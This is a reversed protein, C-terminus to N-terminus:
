LCRPFVTSRPTTELRCLIHDQEKGIPILNSTCIPFVTSLPPPIYVCNKMDFPLLLQKESRGIAKVTPFVKVNIIM